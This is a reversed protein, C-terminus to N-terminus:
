LTEVLDTACKNIKCTKALEKSIKQKHDDLIEMMGRILNLYEDNKPHTVDNFGPNDFEWVKLFGLMDKGKVKLDGLLISFDVDKVWNAIKETRKRKNILFIERKLDTCHIPRETEEMTALKESMRMVLTSALGYQMINTMDKMTPVILDMFEEMNMAYKCKENLFFNLNFSNNNQTNHSNTMTNNNIQIHNMLEKNQLMLQKVTNILEDENRKEPVLLEAYCMNRHRSLSPLHKYKKGCKDCEHPMKLVIKHRETNIHRDWRYKRDTKYACAACSYMKNQLM